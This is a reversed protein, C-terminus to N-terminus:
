KLIQLMAKTSEILAQSIGLESVAHGADPIIKLESETWQQNLEYAQDVPCIVDYRGHVIFGPIHQIKHVNELLQNEAM